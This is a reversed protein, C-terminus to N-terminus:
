EWVVQGKEMIERLKEYLEHLQEQLKNYDIEDKQFGFHNLTNRYRVVDSTLNALEMPLSIILEEVKQLYFEREHDELKKFWTDTELEERRGKILKEIDPLLRESEASKRQKRRADNYQAAMFKITRGVITDRVLEEEVPTEYAECIYTKITEELATFGQQTLGKLIAWEVAAMGAATNKMVIKKDEKVQCCVRGFMNVDAEIKDFLRLLPMESIQHDCSRMKDYNSKFYDYATQISGKASGGVKGRSTNLCNTLDCLRDLTKTSYQQERGPRVRNKYLTRIQNSSGSKIFSEAAGTWDLIGSCASMDLLNVHLIGDEKTEGLEFAGYYMGGVLINKLTKAYHIVTLAQMPINRLGHTFDFYITEEPLIANYMAEFIENIEEANRGEKIRVGKIDADPFEARMMEYLGTKVEGEKVEVQRKELIRQDSKTYERTVWNQKESKETVFVTIRDCKGGTSEIYKLVALQAYSTNWQFNEEQIEYICNTYLSTGLVTIFHIGM